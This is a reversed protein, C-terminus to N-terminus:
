NGAVIAALLQRGGLFVHGIGQEPDPLHVRHVLFFSPTGHEKPPSFFSGVFEIELNEQFCPSFVALDLIVRSPLISGAGILLSALVCHPGFFLCFLWFLHLRPHPM